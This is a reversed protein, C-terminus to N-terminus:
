RPLQAALDAPLEVSFVLGISSGILAPVGLIGYDQRRLKGTATIRAGVRTEDLVLSRTVGHLTLQGTTRALDCAGDYSLTPYHAADLLSAGLATRTYIAAGMALSTVDVTLQVHCLQPHAPDFQLSGSFRSFRGSQPLVGLAYATLGIRADDPALKVQAACAFSAPLAVLIGAFFGLGM